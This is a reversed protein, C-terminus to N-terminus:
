VKVDVRGKSKRASAVDLAVIFSIMATTGLPLSSVVLFVADGILSHASSYVWMAVYYSTLVVAGTAWASGCENRRGYIVGIVIGIVGMAVAMAVLAHPARSMSGGVLATVAGSGFGLVCMVVLMSMTRHTTQM